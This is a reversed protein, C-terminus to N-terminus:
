GKNYEIYPGYEELILIWILIRDTILNNCTLNKHDTYIRLRQGLLLTRFEKLTEVIILLEKETVTYSKQSDTLKRSYFTIPKGKQSIVAGLNPIALMPIFKLHKM